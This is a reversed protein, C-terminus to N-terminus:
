QVYIVRGGKSGKFGYLKGELAFDNLWESPTLSRNYLRFKQIGMYTKGGFLQEILLNLKRGDQVLKDPAKRSISTFNFYNNQLNAHSYIRLSIDVNEPLSDDTIKFVKRIKRFTTTDHYLSNFVYNEEEILEFGVNNIELTVVSTTGTLFISDNRFYTIVEYERNSLAFIQPVFDIEIENVTNNLIYADVVNRNEYLETTASLSVDLSNYITNGSIYNDDIPEYFNFEYYDFHFHHRLGYTAGGWSIGYPVNIQMERPQDFGKFIFEKFNTFTHLPRGNFYITLNGTRPPCDKEFITLKKKPKFDFGIEVWGDTGGSISPLDNYSVCKESYDSEVYGNENIRVYGIKKNEDFRFGIENDYVGKEIINKTYGSLYLNEHTALYNDESTYIETEGSFGVNYKSESKAGLYFIYGDNDSLINNFTEDSLKVWTRLAFGDLYRKPLIEYPYGELAFNNWLWGGELQLYNGVTSGTIPEITYDYTVGSFNIYSGSDSLNFQTQQLCLKNDFPTLQKQEYVLNTQAFDYSTIGYDLLSINDSLSKSYKEKTCIYIPLSLDLTSLDFEVILDKRTIDQNCPPKCPM